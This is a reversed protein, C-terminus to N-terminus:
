SLAQRVESGANPLLNSGRCSPSLIHAFGWFTRCPVGYKKGFQWFLNVISIHVTNLRLACVCHVSLLALHQTWSHSSNLVSVNPSAQTMRLVRAKLPLLQCDGHASKLARSGSARQHEIFGESKPTDSFPCVKLMAM